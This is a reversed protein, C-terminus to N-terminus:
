HGKKEEEDKIKGIMVKDLRDLSGSIIELNDQEHNIYFKIYSDILNDDINLLGNQNIDKSFQSFLEPHDFYGQRLVACYSHCYVDIGLWNIEDDISFFKSYKENIESKIVILENIEKKKNSYNLMDLAIKKDAILRFDSEHYRLQKMENRIRIFKKSLNNSYYDEDIEFWPMRDVGGYCLNDVVSVKPSFIGRGEADYNESPTRVVMFGSIINM